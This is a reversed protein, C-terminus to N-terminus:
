FNYCSCIRVNESQQYWMMNGLSILSMALVATTIRATRNFSSWGHKFVVSIWLNENILQAMLEHYYAEYSENKPMEKINLYDLYNISLASLSDNESHLSLIDGSFKFENVLHFYDDISGVEPMITIPNRPKMVSISKPSWVADVKEINIWVKLRLAYELPIQVTSVLFLRRSSSTFTTDQLKCSYFRQVQINSVFREFPNPSDSKDFDFQLFIHSPANQQFTRNTDIVILYCDTDFNSATDLTRIDNIKLNIEDKRDNRQAYFIGFLYLTLLAVSFSAIIVSAANLNASKISDFNLSRPPVAVDTSLTFSDKEPNCECVTWNSNSAKSVSCENRDWAESGQSLTRCGVNLTEIEVDSTADLNIDILKIALMVRCKDGFDHFCLGLEGEVPFHVGFPHGHIEGHPDNMDKEICDAETECQRIAMMETFTNTPLKFHHRYVLQDPIPAYGYNFWFDFSHSMNKPRIWVMMDQGRTPQLKIIEANAATITKDALVPPNSAKTRVVLQDIDGADRMQLAPQDVKEGFAYPNSKIGVMSPSSLSRKHKYKNPDVKVTIGHLPLEVNTEENEIKTKKAALNEDGFFGDGEVNEAVNILVDISNTVANLMKKEKEANQEHIKGLMAKELKILTKDKTEDIAKGNEVSEVGKVIGILDDFLSATANVDTFDVETNTLLEATKELDDLVKGQKQASIEALKDAEAPNLDDTVVIEVKVIECTRGNDETFHGTKCSCEFSGPTDTCIQHCDHTGM